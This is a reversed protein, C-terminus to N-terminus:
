EQITNACLRGQKGMKEISEAISVLLRLDTKDHPVSFYVSVLTTNPRMGKEKTLCKFSLVENSRALLEADNQLDQNIRQTVEKFSGDWNGLGFCEVIVNM